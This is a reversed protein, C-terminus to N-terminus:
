FNPIFSLKVFKRLKFYDEPTEFYMKELETNWVYVLLCKAKKSKTRIAVIKRYLSGDIQRCCRLDLSRLGELNQVLEIIGDNTVNKSESIDIEELNPCAESVKALFLDNLDMDAVFSLTLLNSLKLIGARQAQTFNKPRFIRLTQIADSNCSALINVLETGKSEKKQSYWSINVHKLNPLRAVHEVNGNQYWHNIRIEELESQTQLLVEFAAENLNICSAINLRELKTGKCIEIFHESKLGYCGQLNLDKLKTLNNLHIGSIARNNKIDLNELERLHSMLLCHDDLLELTNCRLVKINKSGRLIVEMIERDVKGPFNFQIEEINPCNTPVLECYDRINKHYGFKLEILLKKIAHGYKALIETAESLSTNEYISNFNFMERTLIRKIIVEFKPCANSVNLYDRIRLFRFIHELCFDDLDPTPQQATDM